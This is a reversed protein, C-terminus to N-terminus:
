KKIKPQMPDENSRAPEERTTSLPTWEENHHAPKENRRSRKSHLVPELRVPRLLQPVRAWYKHSAPELACAWCNHRVPKTARRCTPDEWVLAWVQTGQMPLLIRLWQVVLSAQELCCSCQTWMSWDAPVPRSTNLNSPIPLHFSVGQWCPTQAKTAKHSGQSWHQPPRSLGTSGPM